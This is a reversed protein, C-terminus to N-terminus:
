KELLTVRLHHTESGDSSCTIGQNKLTKELEQLALELRPMRNPDLRLPVQLIAASDGAPRIASDHNLQTLAETRRSKSRSDAALVM